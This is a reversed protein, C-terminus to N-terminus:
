TDADNFSETFNGPITIVAYYKKNVLGDQAKTADVVDYKFTDKETLKNILESGKCNETCADENVLAIPVDKLNDYPDWFGKLYVLSYILPLIIIGLIIIVKMFRKKNIQKM